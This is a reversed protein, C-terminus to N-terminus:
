CAALRKILDNQGFLVEEARIDDRFNDWDCDSGKFFSFMGLDEPGHDVENGVDDDLTLKVAVDNDVRQM